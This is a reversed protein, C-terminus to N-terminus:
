VHQSAHGSSSDDALHVYMSASSSTAGGSHVTFDMSRDLFLVFVARVEVTLADPRKNVYDGLPETSWM